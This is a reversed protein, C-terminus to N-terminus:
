SNMLGYDPEDRRQQKRRKMYYCFGLAALLTAVGVVPVIIIWAKPGPSDSSPPNNVPIPLPTPAPTPDPPPPPPLDCDISITAEYQGSPFGATQLWGYKRYSDSSYMGWLCSSFLGQPSGRVIPQLVFQFQDSCHVPSQFVALKYKVDTSEGNMYCVGGDLQCSTRFEPLIILTVTAKSMPLSPFTDLEIAVHMPASGVVYFYNSSKAGWLHIGSNPPMRVALFGPPNNNITITECSHCIDSLYDYMVPMIHAGSEPFDAGQCLVPGLIECTFKTQFQTNDDISIRCQPPLSPSYIPHAKVLFFFVLLYLVPKM